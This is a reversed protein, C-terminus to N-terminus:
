KMSNLNNVDDNGCWFTLTNGTKRDVITLRNTADSYDSKDIGSGISVLSDPTTFEFMGFDDAGEKIAENYDKQHKIKIQQITEMSKLEKDGFRVTLKNDKQTATIITNNDTHCYFLESDDAALASSSILISILISKM